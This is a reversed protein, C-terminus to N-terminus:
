LRLSFYFLIMNEICYKKSFMSASHGTSTGHSQTSKYANHYFGAALKDYHSIPMTISPEVLKLSCMHDTQTGESETFFIRSKLPTSPQDIDM